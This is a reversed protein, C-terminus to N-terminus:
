FGVGVRLNIVSVTGGGIAPVYLLQLTGTKFVVTAVVGGAIVCTKLQECSYGSVVAAFVGAKVIGLELPQWMGGINASLKGYSNTGIGIDSTLSNDFDHQWSVRRPQKWPECTKSYAEQCVSSHKTYSDFVLYDAAHCSTSWCLVFLLVKWM